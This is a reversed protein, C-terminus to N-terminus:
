CHNLMTLINESEITSKNNIGRQDFLKNPILLVENAGIGFYKGLQIIGYKDLIKQDPPNCTYHIVGQQTEQTGTPRGKIIEFAM